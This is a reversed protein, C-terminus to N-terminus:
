QSRGQGAPRHAAIDAHAALDRQPAPHQRDASHTLLEQSGIAKRQSGDNQRGLVALVQHVDGLLGPPRDVHFQDTVHVLNQRQRQKRGPLTTSPGPSPFASRAGGGGGGGGAGVGSAEGGGGGLGMKSMRGKTSGTYETTHTGLPSDRTTRCGAPM